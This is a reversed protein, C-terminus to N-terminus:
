NYLQVVLEGLDAVLKSPLQDKYDFLMDVFKKYSVAIQKNTEVVVQEAEAETILEKNEEDFTNIAKQAKKIADEYTTRQVQLKTAQDKFERLKKLKEQKLKRDENAQKVEVDRQELNKVQEALLAWPSVVEEREQTLAEWWSWDLKISDDVIHALLPNEGDGNYKVCASVITHVSQIARSFESKAQAQETELKALYGLKELESTALM